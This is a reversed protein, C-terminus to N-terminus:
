TGDYLLFISDQQLKPALLMQDYLKILEAFINKSEPHSADHAFFYYMFGGIQIWSSGPEKCLVKEKMEKRLKGIADWLGASAYLNCLLLYASENDPQMELLQSAALRGLHVDGHMHCASLLIQWIHADPPIPMHDITAKADELRGVRGLLDVMCAYHELEPTLGHIEFMSNIFTQAERALGSHCCSMLLGLYTIEDPKIGFILLCRFLELVKCHRGHQAYGLIISNWAALNEESASRFAKEADDISGCKCYIDIVATVVFNDQHLGSKLTLSHIARGRDLDTVAACAKLVTSFTRSDIKLDSNWTTQFLHMADQHCHSNLLASTMVNIHVVNMEDIEFFIMKSENIGNCKGYTTILCSVISDDLLFGYKIIYSHTQMALKLCNFNSVAELISAVTYNDPQLSFQRMQSFKELAQGCFGNGAYGAVLSNWSVSDRYVMENFMCSADNMEGCNGYLTILANSVSVMHLCGSKHCLAQVQRGVVLIKNGAVASLVNIITYENMELDRLRLIKFWELAEEGDFAAGIRETWSVIDPEIIEDFMKVADFRSCCRSYMSMIANNLHISSGNLLGMKLGLAHIQEGERVNDLAGLVGTLSFENLQLGLRTMGSFINKGNGFKGNRVYGCIMSTCVVNDVRLCNAFCKEASELDGNKTYNEILGSVVFGENGLGTRLCIGHAIENEELGDCGRVLSSLTYVDPRLGLYRMDDFLEFVGASRRFRAFGSILANYTVTDPNQTDSLFALARVFDGNRSFHSILTASLFPDLPCGSKIFLSYVNDTLLPNLSSLSYKFAQSYLNQTVLTKISPKSHSLARAFRKM